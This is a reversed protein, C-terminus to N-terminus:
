WSEEGCQAPPSGLCWEAWAAQCLLSKRPSDCALLSTHNDSNLYSIYLLLHGETSFLHYQTWSFTNIARKNNNNLQYPMGVRQWEKSQLVGPKRTKEGDRATQEFEHRYLRHHWGVMEDETTGKEEHRWEKGADSDKRKGDPPWLIPAEAEADTMGTFVWPHNGKPNISRQWCM